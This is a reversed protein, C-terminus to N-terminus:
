KNADKAFIGLAAIALAQWKGAAGYAILHAVAYGVGAVTTKWSGWFNKLM